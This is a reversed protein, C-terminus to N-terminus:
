KLFRFVPVGGKSARYGTFVADNIVGSNFTVRGRQGTPIEPLTCDWRASSNLTCWTKAESDPMLGVGSVTLM